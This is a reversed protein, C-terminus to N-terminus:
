GHSSSTAKSIVSRPELLEAPIYTSHPDLNSLLNPLTREILSDVDVEDVYDNKILGLIESLKKEGAGTRSNDSFTIGIWIGGILSLAIVLPM